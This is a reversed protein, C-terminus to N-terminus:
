EVMTSRLLWLFGIKHARPAKPAVPRPPTEHGQEKPFTALRERMEYFAPSDM